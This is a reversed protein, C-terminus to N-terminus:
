TVITDTFLVFTDNRMEKTNNAKINEVETINRRM